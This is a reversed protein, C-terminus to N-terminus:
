KLFDEFLFDVFMVTRKHSAACEQMKIMHIVSMCYQAFDVQKLKMGLHLTAREDFFLREDKDEKQQRKLTM